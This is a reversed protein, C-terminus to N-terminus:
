QIKMNGCGLQEHQFSNSKAPTKLCLLLLRICSLFHERLQFLYSATHESSYGITLVARDINTLILLKPYNESAFHLINCPQTHTSFLVYNRASMAPTDSLIGCPPDEIESPSSPPGPWLSVGTWPSAPRSSVSRSPPFLVCSSLPFLPSLVASSPSHITPPVAPATDKDNLRKIKNISYFGHKQCVQKHM